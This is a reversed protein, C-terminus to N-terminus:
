FDSNIFDDLYLLKNILISMHGYLDWSVEAM